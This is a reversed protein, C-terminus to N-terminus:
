APMSVGNERLLFDAMDSFYAAAHPGCEPVTSLGPHANIEILLWEGSADRGCDISYLRRGYPALVPDIKRVLEMVEKPRKEPAVPFVTGGLGINSVLKGAPPIKAYTFIVEGDAVTIRFDHTGELVGPIGASTDIFRQVIVPFEHDAALVDAKSGIVVGDGGFGEVPKM